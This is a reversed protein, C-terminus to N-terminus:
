SNHVIVDIPHHIQELLRRYGKFVSLDAQVPEFFQGNAESVLHSLKEKLAAASSENRHYHMYLSYGEAAFRESLASGIGGSAGTILAIKGM